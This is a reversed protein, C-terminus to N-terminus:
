LNEVSSYYRSDNSSDKNVFADVVEDGSKFTPDTNDNGGLTNGDFSPKNDSEVNVTNKPKSNAEIAAAIKGGLTDRSSEKIRTAAASVTGKSLESIVSSALSFGSGHPTESGDAGGPTGVSGGVGAAELKQASKIAEMVASGVGTANSATAGLMSGAMSVGAGAMAAAGTM